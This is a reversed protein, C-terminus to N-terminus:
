FGWTSTPGPRRVVLVEESESWVEGLLGRENKGYRFGCNRYFDEARVSASGAGLVGSTVCAAVVGTFANQQVLHCAPWWFMLGSLDSSLFCFGLSFIGM